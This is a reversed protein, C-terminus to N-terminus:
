KLYTCVGTNFIGAKEVKAGSYMPQCTAGPPCKSTVGGTGSPDSPDCVLACASITNDDMGGVLLCEPTATTGAPLGATTPCPYLQGFACQPKGPEICGCQPACIAGSINFYEPVPVRGGPSWHETVTALMSAEIEDFGSANPAAKCAGNWPNAYSPAGISTKNRDLRLAVVPAQARGALVGAAPKTGTVNTYVTCTYAEKTKCGMQPNCMSYFLGVGHIGDGGGSQCCSEPNGISTIVTKVNGVWDFGMKGYADKSGDYNQSGAPCTNGSNWGVTGALTFM